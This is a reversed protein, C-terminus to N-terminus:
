LEEIGHRGSLRQPSGTRPIIIESQMSDEDDGGGELTNEEGGLSDLEDREGEKRERVDFM